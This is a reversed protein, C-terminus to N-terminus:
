HLHYCTTSKRNTGSIGIKISRDEQLFIDIDTLVKTSSKLLEFTKRDM